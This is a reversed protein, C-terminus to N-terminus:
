LKTVVYFHCFKVKKALLTMLLDILNVNFIYLFHLNAVRHEYQIGLWLNLVYKMLNQFKAIVKHWCM